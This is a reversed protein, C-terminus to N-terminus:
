VTELARRNATTDRQSARVVDYQAYWVRAIPQQKNAARRKNDKEHARDEADNLADAKRQAAARTAATDVVWSGSSDTRCVSWRGSNPKSQVAATDSSISGVIKIPM